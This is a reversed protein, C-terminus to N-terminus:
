ARVRTPVARRGRVPRARADRQQGGVREGDSPGLVAVVGALLLVEQRYITVVDEKCRSGKWSNSDANRQAGLRKTGMADASIGSQMVAVGMPFTMGAIPQLSTTAM